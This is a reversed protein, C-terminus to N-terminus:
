SNHNIILLYYHMWKIWIETISDFMNQYCNSTMKELM